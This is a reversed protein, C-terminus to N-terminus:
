QNLRINGEQDHLLERITPGILHMLDIRLSDYERKEDDERSDYTDRLSEYRQIRYILDRMLDLIYKDEEIGNNRTIKWIGIKFIIGAYIEMSRNYVEPGTMTMERYLDEILTTGPYTEHVLNSAIIYMSFIFRYTPADCHRRYAAVLEDFRV